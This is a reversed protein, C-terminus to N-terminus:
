ELVSQLWVTFEELPTPGYFYNGGTEAFPPPQAGKFTEEAASESTDTKLLRVDWIVQVRFQEVLTYYQIRGWQLVINKHLRKEVTKNDTGVCAIYHMEGPTKAKLNESLKEDVGYIAFRVSDKNLGFIPLDPAEHGDCVTKLVEKMVRRAQPGSSRSFALYTAQRAAEVSKTMTESVAAGKASELHGLAGEFDEAASLQHAWQIQGNALADGASEDNTGGSKSVALELKEIALPFQDQELLDSGWEIYARSQGANVKAASDFQSQPDTSAALEFKAIANEFQGQSQLDLGWALYTETLERQADTVSDNKQYTLSWTKFDNLVQESRVFDGAERMSAGWLTYVSPLLDWADTNAATDLYSTLILNLNALAEEYKEQEMQDQALNLLTVASHQHAEIVFLGNPYTSSYAQYADYAERWSEQKEKAAASVYAECEEVPALLTGDRMFRPYLSTYVKDLTLASDCNKSQHNSVILVPLAIWGAGYMLFLLLISLVVVILVIIRSKPFRAPTQVIESM